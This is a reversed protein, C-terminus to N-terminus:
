TKGLVLDLPWCGPVHPGPGRCHHLIPAEHCGADELADALIPLRDFAREDYIAKALQVVTGRNWSLWAPDVVVPRFPNGAIDQLLCVLKRNEDAEAQNWASAWSAARTSNPAAGVIKWAV